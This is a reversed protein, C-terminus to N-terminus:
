KSKNGAPAPTNTSAAPTEVTGVPSPEKADIIAQNAAVAQDIAAAEVVPGAKKTQEVAQEQPTGIAPNETKAKRGENIALSTRDEQVGINVPTHKAANARVDIDKSLGPDLTDDTLDPERVLPGYADKLRQVNDGEGMIIVAGVNEVDGLWENTSRLYVDHNPRRLEAAKEVAADRDDGFYILTKISM